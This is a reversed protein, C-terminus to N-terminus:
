EQHLLEKAISDVGISIVAEGNRTITDSNWIRTIRRTGCEGELEILTLGIKLTWTIFPYTQYMMKIRHDLMTYPNAM